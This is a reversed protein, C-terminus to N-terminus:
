IIDRKFINNWNEVFKDISFKDIILSRANMGIQHALDKNELLQKCYGILESEDNSLFANVGHTFFDPINQKATSVIPLGICAAELLSLPCPSLQSTNLFFRYESLSKVLESVNNISKSIGPNEGILHTPVSKAIKQWLEWGCFVDRSAFHNVVSVGSNITGSYVTFINHDIGHPIVIGSDDEWSKRNHETIYVNIDGHLLKLKDIKKRSLNPYPETHTLSVIPIGLQQQLNIAQQLQIGREQALIFDFSSEGRFQSPDIMYLYHNDPLPRTHFDWRKGGPQHIVHFEINSLYGLMSSYGEHTPWTLVRIKRNIPKNVQRLITKQRTLM